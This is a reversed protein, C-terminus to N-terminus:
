GLGKAQGAEAFRVSSIHGLVRASGIATSDRVRSHPQPSPSSWYGNFRWKLCPRSSVARGMVASDCTKSTAWPKPVALLRQIAFKPHLRPSPRSRYGHFRLSPNRSLVRARDIAMSDRAQSTVPSETGVLLRRTAPSPIQDLVCARGIGTSDRARSTASSEGGVSLGPIASEVRFAV